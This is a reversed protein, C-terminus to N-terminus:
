SGSFYKERIYALDHFTDMNGLFARRAVENMQSYLKMNEPNPENISMIQVLSQASSISDWMGVCVGGCIAAGWSNAEQRMATCTIPRGIVDALIQRWSDSLAGGGILTVKHMNFGASRELKSLMERLVFATGEMVARCMDAYSHSLDLGLFSGRADLENYPAGGGRLFPLFLLGKAGAPSNQVLEEIKSYGIMDKSNLINNVLDRMWRHAIGGCYGMQHPVYGKGSIDCLNVMRAPFDFIPTKSYMGTWAGSGIYIYSEGEGSVGAGATAISVDGGGVCVKTGEKLGTERAATKTVEGLLDFSRKIPLLKETTVGISELIDKSWIKERIDMMACESADSYDTSLEGTLKWAIFEKVQLFKDAKEYLEPMKEKIWALKFGTYTEETMGGGTINYFNEYGGFEAHIREVQETARMDAWIWCPDQLIIGEKSLPIATSMQASPSVCVIDEAKIEQNSLLARMADCFANWWEVPSQLAYNPKPFYTQYEKYNGAIIAATEDFLTVKVGSSGFDLALIMERAM